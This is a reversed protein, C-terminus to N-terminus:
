AAKGDDKEAQEFQNNEAALKARNMLAVALAERYDVRDKYKGVLEEALGVARDLSRLSDAYRREDLRVGGVNSEAVALEHGYDPVRPFERILKEALEQEREAYAGAGPEKGSLLIFLNGNTKGLEYRYFAVAPQAAVVENQVALARRYVNLAEDRRGIRYRLLNALNNLYRGLRRRDDLT